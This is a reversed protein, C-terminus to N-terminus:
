HALKLSYTESRRQARGPTKNMKKKKRLAFGDNSGEAAGVEEEKQASVRAPAGAHIGRIEGKCCIRRQRPGGGEEGEM